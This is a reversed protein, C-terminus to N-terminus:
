LQKIKDAIDTLANYKWGEKHWKKKEEELIQLVEEKLNTRGNKYALPYEISHRNANACNLVPCEYEKAGHPCFEEKEQTESVLHVINEKEGCFTCREEKEPHEKEFQEDLYLEVARMWRKPFGYEDSLKDELERIRESPRMIPRQKM